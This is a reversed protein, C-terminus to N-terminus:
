HVNSWRDLTAPVDEAWPNTFLMIAMLLIRPTHWNHPLPVKVAIQCREIEPM